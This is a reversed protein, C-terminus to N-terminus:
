CASRAAAACRAAGHRPRQALPGAPRPISDRRRGAVPQGVGSRRLKLLDPKRIVEYIRRGRLKAPDGGLLTACTENLSLITGENDIALVGEEMSSLMAERENQQRLVTQIREDLQEAMRNMAEAM